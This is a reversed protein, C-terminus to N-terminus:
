KGGSKTAEVYAMRLQHGVVNLLSEEDKTTNGKTKEEVVGILDIFHKAANLDTKIDPQGPIKMQGMAVMAQTALMHILMTLSAPPATEGGTPTSSSM